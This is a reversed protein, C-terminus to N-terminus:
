CSSVVVLSPTSYEALNGSDPTQSLNQRTLIQQHQQVRNQDGGKPVYPPQIRAVQPLLKRLNRPLSRSDHTCSSAALSFPLLEVCSPRCPSSPVRQSLQLSMFM